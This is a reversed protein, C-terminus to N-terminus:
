FFGFHKLANEIGNESAKSTVYSVKDFLSVPYSNGMAISNKVFSLMSLDNNSDGFAFVDNESISFYETVKKIGSAKSYTLPVFERFNGGRDICSFYKDTFSCFDSIIDTDKFWVVFKDCFFDRKEPDREMDYGLKCFTQYQEFAEKTYFPRSRDFVVEYKSEFLIDVDFDRAHFLIKKTLDPSQHVELIEKLGSDSELFINTGCGCVYGDFGIKKFREEVNQFCRGTNIFMLHGNQRAKRLSSFVSEPISSDIESTLTGDIDFFAIKRNMYFFDGVSFIFRLRM